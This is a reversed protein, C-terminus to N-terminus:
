ISWQHLMMELLIMQFISCDTIKKSPGSESFVVCSGVGQQMYQHSIDFADIREIKKIGLKRSLEQYAFDYKEKKGLHNKIIQM